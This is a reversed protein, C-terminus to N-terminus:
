INEPIKRLGYFTMSMLLLVSCVPLFHICCHLFRKRNKKKWQQNQNAEKKVTSGRVWNNINGRNVSVTDKVNKFVGSSFRVRYDFM